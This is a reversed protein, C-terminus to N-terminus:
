KYRDVVGRAFLSTGKSGNREEDVGAEVFDWEDEEERETLVDIGDGIYRDLAAIGSKERRKGTHKSPQPVAASKPPIPPKGSKSSTESRQSDISPRPVEVSPRKRTTGTTAVQQIETNEEQVHLLTQIRQPAAIM